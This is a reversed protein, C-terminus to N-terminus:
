ESEVPYRDAINRLFKWTPEDFQAKRTAGTSMFICLNKGFGERDLILNITDKIRPMNKESKLVPTHEKGNEGTIRIIEGIRLVGDGDVRGSGSYTNGFPSMVRMEFYTGLGQSHHRVAMEVPLSFGHCDRETRYSFICDESGIELSGSYLKTVNPFRGAVGFLM